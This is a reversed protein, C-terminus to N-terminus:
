PETRLGRGITGDELLAGNLDGRPGHLQAKIRGTASLTQQADRPGPPGGTGACLGRM